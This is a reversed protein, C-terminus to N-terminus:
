SGYLLYNKGIDNPSNTLILGLMEENEPCNIVHSKHTNHFQLCKMPTESSYRGNLNIVPITKFCSAATFLLFATITLRVGFAM